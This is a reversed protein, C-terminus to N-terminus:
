QAKVQQTNVVYVVQRFVGLVRWQKTYVLSLGMAAFTAKWGADTKNTHPAPAYGLNVWWDMAYTAYQQVKNRYIDEIIVVSKAVRAAEELIAEPSQTHHLVTLLLAYDYSQDAYPIVEGDYVVAELQPHLVAGAQVDLLTVRHGRAILAEAVLGNGAGIDLVTAYPKLVQVFPAIKRQVWWPGLRERYWKRLWPWRTIWVLM